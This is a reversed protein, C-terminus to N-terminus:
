RRQDVFGWIYKAKYKEIWGIKIIEEGFFDDIEWTFNNIYIANKTEHSRPWRYPNDAPILRLAEQLISYVQGFDKCNEVVNWYYVMLYVPQWKYSVVERWGYPEGWFYNDHYKWDWDEFVITTSKDENIVKMGSDGSAYTSKKAVALFRCLDNKDFM